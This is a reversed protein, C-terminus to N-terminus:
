VSVRNLNQEERYEWPSRYNLGSHPAVTNYDEFWQSLQAIVTAAGSLEHTYVYDRKFTNVFAESMGNSEPSYSPTTRVRFGWTKGYDKTENAAYQPGNDSLWEIPQPLHEVREGFRHVVTHDMLTMIDHHDLDHPRAVFAMAERDHCDLSFAKVDTVPVMHQGSRLAADGGEQFRHRWRLIYQLQLEYKRAVEAPTFGQDLEALMAKKQEVSWLRKGNRSRRVEM